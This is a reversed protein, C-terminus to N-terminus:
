AYILDQLFYLIDTSINIWTGPSSNIKFLRKYFQEFVARSEHCVFYIAPISSQSKVVLVGEQDNKHITSSNLSTERTLSVRTSHHQPVKSAPQYYEQLAVIRPGLLSFIWIQNRLELPLEKFLPFSSIQTRKQSIKRPM